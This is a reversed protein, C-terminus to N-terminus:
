ARLRGSGRWTGVTTALTPRPRAAVCSSQPATLRWRRRTRRWSPDWTSTSAQPLPTKAPRLTLRPGPARPAPLLAGAAGAPAARATSCPARLPRRGRTRVAATSPRRGAGTRATGAAPPPPLLPRAPFARRRAAHTRASSARAGPRLPGCRAARLGQSGAAAVGRRVLLRRPLALQPAQQLIVHVGQDACAPERARRAAAPPAVVRRRGRGRARPRPAGAASRRQRAARARGGAGHPAAGAAAREHAVRRRRRRARRAADAAGRGGCCRGGQGVQQAPAGHCRATHHPLSRSLPARPRPRLAEQRPDRREPAAARRIGIARGRPVRRGPGRRAAPRPRPRPAGAAAAPPTARKRDTPSPDLDAAWAISQLHTRPPRLPRHPAARGCSHSRARVGAAGSAGGGRAQGGWGAETGSPPGGVPAACVRASPVTVAQRGPQAPPCGPPRLRPRRRRTAHRWTSAPLLAHTPAPRPGRRARPGRTSRMCPPSPLRAGRPEAADPRGGARAHSTGVRRLQLPFALGPTLSRPRPGESRPVQPGAEPDPCM